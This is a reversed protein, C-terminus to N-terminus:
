AKVVIVITQTASGLANSANLNIKFTGPVLQKTNVTITGSNDGNDTFTFGYAVPKGVLTVSSMSITPIPSGRTTFTFKATSGFKFAYPLLYPTTPLNFAPPQGLQLDFYTGFAVSSGNGFQAPGPNITVQVPGPDRYGPAALNLTYSGPALSPWAFGGFGGFQFPGPDAEGSSATLTEQAGLIPLGSADDRVVGSFAPVIAPGLDRCPTTAVRPAVLVSALITENM